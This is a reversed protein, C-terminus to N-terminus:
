HEFITKKKINNKYRSIKFLNNGMYADVIASNCNSNM